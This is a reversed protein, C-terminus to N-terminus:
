IINVLCAVYRFIVRDKNVNSKNGLVGKRGYKGLLRWSMIEFISWEVKMGEGVKGLLVVGKDMNGNCKVYIIM